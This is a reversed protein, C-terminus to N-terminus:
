PMFNWVPEPYFDLKNADDLGIIDLLHTWGLQAILSQVIRIEAIMESCIMM